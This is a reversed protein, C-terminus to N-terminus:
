NVKKFILKFSTGCNEPNQEQPVSSVQIDGGYAKMTAHVLPMGFGTGAEGETGPRSTKKSVSFLNQLLESPIGIGKDEVTLMYQDSNLSEGKIEITKGRPTFKIANSLLNNLVSHTLSVPESLIKVLPDISINLKIEKQVIKDQLLFFSADIIEGLKVPVLLIEKKGSELANLDRVYNILVREKASAREVRKWSELQQEPSLQSFMKLARSTTMQIVAQANNLDHCMVRVLQKNEQAVLELKKNKEKLEETRQQVRVELQQNVKELQEKMETLEKNTKEFQRAKENTLVLRQALIAAFLKFQSNAFESLAEPALSSVEQLALVLMVAKSEAMVTASAQSSSILSIEGVVEGFHDLESVKQEQVYVGLTGELLFFLSKNDDFQQIIVEKPAFEKVSMVESLAKITKESLNKFFLSTTCIEEFYDYKKATM